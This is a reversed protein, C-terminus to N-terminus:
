WYLDRLWDNEHDLLSVKWGKGGGRGDRILKWRIKGGKGEGDRANVFEARSRTM